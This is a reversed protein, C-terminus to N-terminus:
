PHQPHLRLPLYLTMQFPKTWSVLLSPPSKVSAVRGGSVSEAESLRKQGVQDNQKPISPFAQSQKPSFVTERCCIMGLGFRHLTDIASEFRSYMSINPIFVCGPVFEDRLDTQDQM